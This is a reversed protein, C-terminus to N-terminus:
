LLEKLHAWVIGSAMEDATWQTYALNSLLQKRDGLKPTEIESFTHSSIPYVFNGKISTIMPIGRLISDVSMGSTFAVAAWCNKLCNFRNNSSSTRDISYDVEKTLLSLYQNINKDWLPHTKITIPRDTYKRISVLTENIWKFHNTGCLSQDNPSQTILVIHNGKKRWPKIKLDMAKMRDDPYDRDALYFRNPADVVHEFGVRWYILDDVNLLRNLIPTEISVFRKGNSTIINRFENMHTHKPLDKNTGWTIYLDISPDFKYPPNFQLIAEDGCKDIGKAFSKFINTYVGSGGPKYGCVLVKM